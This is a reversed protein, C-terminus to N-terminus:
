RPSDAAFFHRFVAGIPFIQSSTPSNATFRLARSAAVITLIGWDQTYSYDAERPALGIM